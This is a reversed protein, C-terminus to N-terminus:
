IVANVNQSIPYKWNSKRKWNANKNTPVFKAVGEYLVSKFTQWAINADDMNNQLEKRWDRNMFNRLGEYDGKNYNLKNNQTSNNCSISCTIYLVSHDSKGLPSLNTIERIFDGNSIVLDLTHPSNTGRARTPNTVHQNLLNDRLCTIM